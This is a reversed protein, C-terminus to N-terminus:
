TERISNKQQSGIIVELSEGTFSLAQPEPHLM